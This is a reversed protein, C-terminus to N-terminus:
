KGYLRHMGEPTVAHLAVYQTGSKLVEDVDVYHKDFGPLFGPHGTRRLRRRRLANGTTLDEAWHNIPENAAAAMARKSLFYGAGGTIYCGCKDGLGHTCNSFGIQDWREYDLRMLRDVYVFGDDDAKFIFDYNHALAYKYIERMKAPLHEYDDKVNLLVEDPTPTFGAPSPTGYFFKADVYDSFPKVDNWWTARVAEIRGETQRAGVKLDNAHPGYAYQHCAPVAILVRPKKPLKDIAKSRREGIHKIFPKDTPLVAIRYGLDLYLKSLKQEVGIAQTGYGGIRGYSGIRQWDSKRRLGPNGSFGGWVDRWYPKQIQYLHNSDGVWEIPHGSTNDDGRLSVQLIKPNNKLIEASAALFPRGDFEWDDECHFILETEVADYLKDISAWQGIRTRNSIWRINDGLGLLRGNLWEPRKADGDEIIITEHIPMDIACKSLSELTRKLLDHRGCSTVCITVSDDQSPVVDALRVDSTDAEDVTTKNLVENYRSLLEIHVGDFIDYMIQPKMSHASIIDNGMRPQGHRYDTKIRSINAPLIGAAKLAKGVNGDELGTKPLGQALVAEMAARSLCYCGGQAYDTFDNHQPRQRVNGSYDHATLEALYEPLPELFTDDDVKILFDFQNALAYEILKLTKQPLEEYTDPCWLHILDGVGDDALCPEKGAFFKVTVNENLKEVWSMWTDRVANRRDLYRACTMIAILTKMRGM